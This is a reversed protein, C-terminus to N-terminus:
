RICFRLMLFIIRTSSIGYRLYVDIHSNLNCEDKVEDVLDDLHIDILVDM